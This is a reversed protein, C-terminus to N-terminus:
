YGERSKLVAAAIFGGITVTGAAALGIGLGVKQGTSLGVAAPVLVVQEVVPEEEVFRDENVREPVVEVPRSSDATTETEQGFSMNYM